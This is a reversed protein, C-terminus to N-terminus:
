NSRRIRDEERSANGNRKFISFLLSECEALAHALTEVQEYLRKHPRVYYNVQM